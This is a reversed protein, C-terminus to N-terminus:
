IEKNASGSEPLAADEATELMRADGVQEVAALV